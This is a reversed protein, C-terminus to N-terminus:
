DEQVSHLPVYSFREASHEKKSSTAHSNRPTTESDSNTRAAAPSMTNSATPVNAKVDVLQLLQREFLFDLIHRSNCSIHSAVCPQCTWRRARWVLPSYQIIADVISSVPMARRCDQKNAVVYVSATNSSLQCVAWHLLQLTDHMEAADNVRVSDVVFVLALCSELLSVLQQTQGRMDRGVDGVVYKRNNHTFTYQETEVSPLASIARGHGYYMRLAITSSGANERGLVVVRSSKCWCGCCLCCCSM